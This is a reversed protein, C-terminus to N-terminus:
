GRVCLEIDYRYKRLLSKSLSKCKAEYLQSVETPRETKEEASEFEIKQKYYIIDPWDSFNKEFFQIVDKARSFNKAAFSRDLELTAMVFSDETAKENLKKLFTKNKFDAENKKFSPQTWLDLKTNPVTSKLQGLYNELAGTNKNRAALRIRQFICDANLPDIQLCTEVQKVSEKPNEITINLSTEYAEQSDKNIFTQSTTLLFENAENVSNKNTEAKIYEAILQLAQKKQKQLLLATAKTRISALNEVGVRADAKLVIANTFIFFAANLVAAKRFKKNFKFLM